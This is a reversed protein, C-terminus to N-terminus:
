QSFSFQSHPKSFSDVSFSNWIFHVWITMPWHQFLNPSGSTTTVEDLVHSSFDSFTKYGPTSGWLLLSSLLAHSIPDCSIDVKRLLLTVALNKKGCPLFHCFSAILM